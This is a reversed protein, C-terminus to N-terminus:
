FRDKLRRIAGFLEVDTRGELHLAKSLQPEHIRLFPNTVKEVSITGPVTPSGLRRLEQVRKLHGSVADNGPELSLAFMLNEETYEHGPFVFTSDPLRALKQLSAHMQGATGEFIRGCGGLFLCDGSFLLGEKEMYYALHSRTHGPVSIARLSLAGFSMVDGDSLTRDLSPIRGDDPGWVTCGYQEKLARVGGVHDLHHHTCLIHAIELGHSQLYNRVPVADGPDIVAAEKGCALLYAYNDFHFQLCGIGFGQPSTFIHNKETSGM